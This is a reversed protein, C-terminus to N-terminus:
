KDLITQLPLNILTKTFKSFSIGIEFTYGLNFKSSDNKSLISNIGIIEVSPKNYNVNSQNETTGLYYKKDSLKLRTGAGTSNQSFGVTFSLLLITLIYISNM